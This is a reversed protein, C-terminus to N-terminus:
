QKFLAEVDGCIRRNNWHWCNIFTSKKDGELKRSFDRALEISRLSPPAINANAEITPENYLGEYPDEFLDARTLRISKTQLLSIYKALDMYRWIKFSTSETVGEPVWWKECQTADPNTESTPM